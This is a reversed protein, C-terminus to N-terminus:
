CLKTLQQLSDETLRCTRWEQLLTAGIKHYFAIAPENWDLVSWEMRGCGREVATQAVWHILATGIGHRRYEPQVFIDELYLGPKTLFTSYTHFFLAFGVPVAEWEALVAEAYPRAGFLHQELDGISGIVAHSLKEYDALAQILQFLIPVDVPTAFRLTLQTPM